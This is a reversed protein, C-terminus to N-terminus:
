RGTARHLATRLRMLQAVQWGEFSASAPSLTETVTVVPVHRARAIANIRQVEPTVNQSNFIWVKAVRDRVQREVTQTDKASVDTGEAVAKAFSPPTILRLGLNTALPEFISESYGVAVGSYRRRIEKRLADYRALSGTEFARRRAAFYRSAAPDARDLGAVIAAVV